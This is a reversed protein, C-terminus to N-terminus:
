RGAAEAPGPVVFRSVSRLKECTEEFERAPTSGAVIGAGARLWARGRHQYVARLVLAADMAGRSDVTLVAGGYVNRPEPELAAICEYAERRPIGSVTISPFNAELADWAGLGRRLRGRVMSALHQVSGRAKVSMFDEVRISGPPCLDALDEVVARVSVAHEYVEKPDAELELRLREDAEEGLGFARTGALPQVALSGGSGVEVVTEPSFGAAQWEGLSLLFSRAPTNNRRGLAYTAFPDIAFPLPLPRSIIVKRLAGREIRELAAAVAREYPDRGSPAVDVPRPVPSPLVVLESLLERVQLATPLSCSRIVAAGEKLHVETHPIMLHVQLDTAPGPRSIGSTLHASEFAAWGYARWDECPLAALARAADRFPSSTAERALDWDEWSARVVGAGVTVEGQAGGAFWWEGSREYIVHDPFLRAAVLRGLAALPDRLVTTRLEHYRAPSRIHEVSM